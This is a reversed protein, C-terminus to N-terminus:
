ELKGETLPKIPIQGKRINLKKFIDRSKGSGQEEIDIGLEKNISDKGERAGILIVQANLYNIFNTDKTLSVFNENQDFEKLVKDPYKPAEESSPYGSPSAQKPNIVSIIYSAEKEIGFEKQAEGPEEPTELIYAIEAHNQHRVIVYKGFGAPRAGDGKRFEDSFLEKTLENKDKFIGGVRAWFRESARAESKRIEPLSKKGIIFLRYFQNKDNSNTIKDEPATVMFFRRVDEMGKVDPSNKKPRYFFYIDGQELVEPEINNSNNNDANNKKNKEEKSM